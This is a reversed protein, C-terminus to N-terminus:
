GLFASSPAALWIAAMGDSWKPHAIISAIAPYKEAEPNTRPEAELNATQFVTNPEHNSGRPDVSRIVTLKDMMAAQKPMHECFQVGPLKTSIVDFPGRNEVPRGPKPDWTDIHSPGGAMWLLIVSTKISDGGAARAAQPLTLDSGTLGALALAGLQLFSRRPLGARRDEADASIRLM